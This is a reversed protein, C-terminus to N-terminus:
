GGLCFPSAVLRTAPASALMLPVTNFAESSAAPLAIDWPALEPDAPVAEELEWLHTAPVREFSSDLQVEM